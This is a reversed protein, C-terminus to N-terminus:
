DFIEQSNRKFARQVDRIVKRHSRFALNKPLEDFSFFEAEEADDGPKLSGGLIEAMYVVLIVHVRPDDFGGYVGIVKGVEIDLNTEEKAERVAAQVPYEDYEVFGAPLSWFGRKPEFKRKVLLIQEDKLLVTAVAPTPNQYFIFGCDQCVLRNQQEIEKTELVGGCKPCFSFEM